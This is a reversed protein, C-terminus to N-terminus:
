GTPVCRQIQAEALEGQVDTKILVTRLKWTPDKPSNSKIRGM